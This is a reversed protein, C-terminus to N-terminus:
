NAAQERAKGIVACFVHEENRPFFVLMGLDQINGDTKVFCL